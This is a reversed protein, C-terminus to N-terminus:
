PAVSLSFAAFWLRAIVIQEPPVADVTRPMM